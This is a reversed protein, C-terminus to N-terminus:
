KKQQVGEKTDKPPVNVGASVGPRAYIRKLWAQVNPFENLDVGAWSASSIWPFAKIDAISFRPGVLWERGELRKEV